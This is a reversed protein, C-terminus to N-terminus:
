NGELNQYKGKYGEMNKSRAHPLIDVGPSPVDTIATVIAPPFYVQINRRQL